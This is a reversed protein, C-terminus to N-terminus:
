LFSPVMRVSLPSGADTLLYKQLLVVGQRAICENPFGGHVNKLGQRMQVYTKTWTDITDPHKCQSHKQKESNGGKPQIHTCPAVDAATAMTSSSSSSSKAECLQGGLRIRALGHKVHVGLVKASGGEQVLGHAECKCTLWVCLLAMLYLSISYFHSAM